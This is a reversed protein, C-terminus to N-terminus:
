VRTQAHGKPLFQALLLCFIGIGSDRVLFLVLGSVVLASWVLLQLYPVPFNAEAIRKLPWKRISKIPIAIIAIGLVAYFLIGIYVV